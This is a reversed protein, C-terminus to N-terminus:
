SVVFTVPFKAKGIVVLIVDASWRESASNPLAAVVLPDHSFRALSSNPLALTLSLDQSDRAQQNTTEPTIVLAVDQDNRAAM